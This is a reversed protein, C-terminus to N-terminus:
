FEQPDEFIVINGDLSRDRAAVNGPAAPLGVLIATGEGRAEVRLSGDLLDVLSKVVLVGLRRGPGTEEIGPAPVRFQELFEKIDRPLGPGEDQVRFELRDGERSAQIDAKGGARGWAIANAVLNSLIHHLKPGDTVVPDELGLTRIALEIGRARAAPEFSSRVDELISGVEVQTFAPCADGSELEAAAFVNRIQLDLRFAEDKIVAALRRSAEVQVAGHEIQDALGLISSLPNVIENRMLALFRSKIEESRRLKQNLEVLNRNMAGAAALAVQLRDRGEALESAQRRLELHTRVRAGVEEFNFPKVVYDVAGCKFARVKQEWGELATMVIVPTDASGSLGKIRECTEFGDMGPMTLDLLVLDPHEAGFLAIGELGDSAQRVKVGTQELFAALTSSLFPDDDIILITPTSNM